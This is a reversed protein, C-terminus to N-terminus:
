PLGRWVRLQSRVAGDTNEAALIESRYPTTALSESFGEVEAVDDVAVTMRVASDAYSLNMFDFDEAHEAVSIAQLLDLFAVEPAAALELKALAQEAQVRPNVVRRMEPFTQKFVAFQEARIDALESELSTTQWWLGGLKTAIALVLLAVAAYLPGREARRQQQQYSAPLLNRPWDAPLNVAFHELATQQNHLKIDVTAPLANQDLGDARLQVLEIRECPSMAASESQEHRLRLVEGLLALECAFGHWRGSRVIVREGLKLASWTTDTSPEPLLQSESVVYRPKVGVAVLQDLITELATRETYSLAYHDKNDTRELAFEIAEVDGLVSEELVYPAAQEAQSRNRAPIQVVRMGVQEAPLIVVALPASLNAGLAAADGRGVRGLPRAQEDLALWEFTDSGLAHILVNAKM